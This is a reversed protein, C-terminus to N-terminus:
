AFRPWLVHNELHVHQLTDLELRELEAFLTRYSTCAWQPIAYDQSEGRMRGLLEGVASHESKMRAFEAALAPRDPIPALLAPFLSAEERDLHPLLETRLAAVVESLTVLRPNHDGHVRAVKAALQEVFPLIRRLYGHHKDVIHRVLAQNPMSTPITEVAGSREDMARTLEEVVEAVSLQRAACALALSQEGKCCFDIRWKQFHAACESHAIVISAVSQKPDIIAASQYM